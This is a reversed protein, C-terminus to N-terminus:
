GARDEEKERAPKRIIKAAKEHNRLISFTITLLATPTFDFTLNAYFRFDFCRLISFAIPTFDFTRFLSHNLFPPIDDRM